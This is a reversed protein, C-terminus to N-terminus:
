LEVLSLIAKEKLRVARELSEIERGITDVFGRDKIGSLNIRVNYLASLVATRAMMVSVAGDTVANRNGKRIVMEAMEMLEFSRRAVALPINAAKKLASQIAGSRKEKEERTQRPLRFANIVAKYADADRDVDKILARRLVLSKEAVLSMEGAVAEYEKKELTLNAVMEALSAALAASLAAVSGGGPVPERSAIRDLFQDLSLNTLM